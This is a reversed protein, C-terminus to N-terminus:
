YKKMLEDAMDRYKEIKMATYYSYNSYKGVIIHDLMKIGNIRTSLVLAKTLKDDEASPTPDGSPHNHALYFNSVNNDSLFKTIDRVNVKAESEDGKAICKVKSIKNNSDICIVYVEENPKDVLKPAIYAEAKASNDVYVTRSERTKQYVYYFDRFQNLFYSAVEGVGDVEQLSSIDAELVNAYSGFKQILEHAIINTDKQPIIFTLLYELIQHERLSELGHERVQERLRQRHGVHPNKRKLETRRLFAIIKTINYM